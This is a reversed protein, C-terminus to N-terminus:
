VSMARKEFAPLIPTAQCRMRELFLRITPVLPRLLPMMRRSLVRSARTAATLWPPRRAGGADVEAQVGVDVLEELQSLVPSWARRVWLMLRALQDEVEEHLPDFLIPLPTEEIGLTGSSISVKPSSNAKM